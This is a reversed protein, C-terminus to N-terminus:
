TSISQKALPRLHMIYMTFRSHRHMFLLDLPLIPQMQWARKICTWRNNQWFYKITFTFINLHVHSALNASFLELKAGNIQLVSYIYSNFLILLLFLSSILLTIWCCKFIHGCLLNLLWIYLYRITWTSMFCM